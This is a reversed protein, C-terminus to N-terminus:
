EVICNIDGDTVRLKLKDGSAVDKIKSIVRGSEGVAVSYGRTMVKLPSLADLKAVAEGLQKQSNILNINFGTTCRKQYDDVKQRLENVRDVPNRPKLGEIKLRLGEIQKTMSNKIRLQYTAINNLLETQSCVALEAAASPTPARLDAVFDAITFDTEHGVASIIPLKSAFIARAVVEENFAWLDEISGGGRGVILVDVNNLKNFLEIGAVVSEKAGTGQVLAPYLVIQTTPSRRTIVNIIDRVAAGTSATIVGVREPFKPIPKKHSDDFLGEEFLQKKLQEYAVALEGVGDPIMETIYLQYAGGAEYVSIKGRALVKMGDQPTFSLKDVANRFM